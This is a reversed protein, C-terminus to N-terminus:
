SQHNLHHIYYFLIVVMPLCELFTLPINCVESISFFLKRLSIDSWSYLEMKIWVKSFNLILFLERFILWDPLNWFNSLNFEFKFISAIPIHQHFKGSILSQFKFKQFSSEIVFISNLNLKKHIKSFVRLGM